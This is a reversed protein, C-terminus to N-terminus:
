CRSRAGRRGARRDPFAPPVVTRFAGRYRSADARTDLGGDRAAAALVSLDRVMAGAAHRVAAFRWRSAGGIATTLGLLLGFAAALKRSLRLNGLWSM